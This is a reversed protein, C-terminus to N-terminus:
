LGGGRYRLGHGGNRTSASRRRPPAPLRPTTPADRHSARGCGCSPVGDVVSIEHIQECGLCRAIARKKTADLSILSWLGLRGIEPTPPTPPPKLPRHDVAFSATNKRATLQKATL